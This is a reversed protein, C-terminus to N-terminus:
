SNAPPRSLESKELVYFPVAAWKKSKEEPGACSSSFAGLLLTFQLTFLFDSLIGRQEESLPSDQQLPLDGVFEGL